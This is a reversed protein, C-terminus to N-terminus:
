LFVQFKFVVCFSSVNVIFYSKPAQTGYGLNIYQIAITQRALFPLHCTMLSRARSIVTIHQIFTQFELSCRVSSVTLCRSGTQSSYHNKILVNRHILSCKTSTCPLPSTLDGLGNFLITVLIGLFTVSAENNM